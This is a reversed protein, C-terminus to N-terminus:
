RRSGPPPWDLWGGSGPPGRLSWIPWGSRRCFWGAQIMKAQFALGVFVGGFVLNRLRGATIASVTQDAALVLLLVMLTDSINGRNLAVTAPALALM